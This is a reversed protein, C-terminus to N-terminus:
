LFQTQTITRFIEEKEEEEDKSIPNLILPNRGPRGSRKPNRKKLEKLIPKKQKEKLLFGQLNRSQKEQEKKENDVFKM